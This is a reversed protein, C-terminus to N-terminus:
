IRDYRKKGRIERELQQQLNLNVKYDNIPNATNYTYLVDAIHKSHDGSMELMPFMMALDWTMPYFSEGVMLDEKKIKKFLWAYFTRLHSACWRYQRFSNSMIVNKPIEQACGIGNDPWSRYQGYTMWVDSAYVENIKKMVNSHAFWDDGDLTVIISNHPSMKTGILINEGQYKRVDNQIVRINKNNVEYSKAREYTGDNSQADIFIIEYDSYKQSLASELCKDVYNVSNRTSIVISIHNIM